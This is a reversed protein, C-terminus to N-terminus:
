NFKMEAFPLKGGEANKIREGSKLYKPIRGKPTDFYYYIKILRENEFTEGVRDRGGIRLFLTKSDPHVPLGVVGRYHFYQIGDINYKDKGRTDVIWEVQGKTTVLFLVKDNIFDIPVFLGFHVEEKGFGVADNKNVISADLIPLSYGKPTMKGPIYNLNLTLNVGKTGYYHKKIIYILFAFIASAILSAIIGIIIGM